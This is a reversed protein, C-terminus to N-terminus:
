VAWFSIDLNRPSQPQSLPLAIAKCTLPYLKIGTPLVYVLVRSDPVSRQMYRHIIKPVTQVPTHSCRRQHTHVQFCM